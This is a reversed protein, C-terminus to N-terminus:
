YLIGFNIKRLLFKIKNKKQNFKEIEQKFDELQFYKGLKELIIQKKSSPHLKKKKYILKSLVFLCLFIFINEFFIALM